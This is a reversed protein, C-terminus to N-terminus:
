LQDCAFKALRENTALTSLHSHLVGLRELLDHIGTYDDKYVMYTLDEYCEDALENPTMDKYPIHNEQGYERDYKKALNNVDFEGMTFEGLENSNTCLIVQDKYRYADLYKSKRKIYSVAKDTNTLKSM